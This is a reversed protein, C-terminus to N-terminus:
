YYFKLASIREDFCDVTEHLSFTARILAILWHVHVRLLSICLALVPQVRVGGIDFLLVVTDKLMKVLDHRSPAFVQPLVTSLLVFGTNALAIAVVGSASITVVSAPDTEMGHSSHEMRSARADKASRLRASSEGEPYPM